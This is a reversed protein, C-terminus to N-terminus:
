FIIVESREKMQVKVAVSTPHRHTPHGRKKKRRCRLLVDSIEGDVEVGHGFQGFLVLRARGRQRLQSQRFCFIARLEFDRTQIKIDHSLCCVVLGPDVHRGDFKAYEECHSWSWDICLGSSKIFLPKFWWYLWVFLLAQRGTVWDCVCLVWWWLIMVLDDYSRMLFMRLFMRLFM